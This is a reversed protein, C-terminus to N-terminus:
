VQDIYETTVFADVGLDTNQMIGATRMLEIASEWTSLDITLFDDGGGSPTALKVEGEVKAKALDPDSVEIPNFAEVASLVRDINAPDAMFQYGKRCARLFGVVAEPQAEADAKKVFYSDGPMKAFEDTNLYNLEVGMQGFAVESGLFTIFGDVEGRRLFELSGVDAGTVVKNVGNPDLGEAVSMANLLLETTGGQSIVGITKGQFDAPTLLPNAPDSAVSYQSVQDKQGVTILPTGQDGILPCTIVAAAKGFMAQGAAVQSVSSSTGTGAIAEVQLGEEAFYGEQIAIYVDAHSVIHQFPTVYAISVLNAASSQTGGGGGQGPSSSSSTPACGMLIPAGAATTVAFLGANTLFRRRNIM